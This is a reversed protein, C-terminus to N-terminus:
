WKEVASVRRLRLTQRWVDNTEELDQYGCSSDRLEASVSKGVPKRCGKISCGSENLSSHLLKERM